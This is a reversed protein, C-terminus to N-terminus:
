GTFTGIELIRKPQLMHSIMSLFRGQLHGSLMRPMLIKAHTERNLAKLADSEETSHAECYASLEKSIFEM